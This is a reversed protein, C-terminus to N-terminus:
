DVANEAEEEEKVSKPKNYELIQRDVEDWYHLSIEDVPTIARGSAVMAVTMIVSTILIVYLLVSNNFVAVEFQAPISFFLLITILGRPAIWLEPTIDKRMVVKLIFVRVLFIIAVIVLSTYAANLDGLSAIEITVGFIVFFFTRVVFASEITILHFNKLIEKLSSKRLYKKLWGRFFLKNNNIVLGFILIILLSSLHFIKGLSYLLLLVAILLFLKVPTNLNQFLLVLAYSVVVSLVVTLVINSVIDFVVMQTSSESNGILFYFFMIGLIDSFTAEYVMFEKKETILAGVSPIVIASSMISLPVAYILATFMDIGLITHFLYGCGLSTLILSVLAVVFSKWIIPWRERHLELDLAAELVIMTLGVIGLLELINFIFESIGVGYNELLVRIGMGLMVLLIVSPINTKRSVINFLYSFIITASIAIIIIYPNNAEM